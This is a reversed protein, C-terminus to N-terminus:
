FFTNIKFYETFPSVSLYSSISRGEFLLLLFLSSYLYCIYLILELLKVDVLLLELFLIFFVSSLFNSFDNKKLFGAGM